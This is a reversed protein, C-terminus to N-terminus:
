WWARSLSAGHRHVLQDLGIPRLGRNRLGAIISPLASATQPQVHLLIISGPRAAQVVRSIIATAGPQTWDKPDVDWLTIYRYGVTGAASLVTSDFAGDPPRVYPTAAARWRWWVGRDYELRWLVDSFSLGTLLAHDWGHSGVTHGARITRAALSPNAQVTTGPCFFAAKVHARALTRLISAWSSAFACDDFTLAVRRGVNDVRAVLRSHAAHDFRYAHSLRASSRNGAADTLVGRLRYVGPLTSLVKRRRIRVVGSGTPLRDRVWRRVTRGYASVLRFRARLPRSADRIRYRVTLRTSRVVGGASTWKLRPRTTDIRLGVTTSATNGAQDRGSVTLRYRGDPLRARAADRGGWRLRLGGSVEMGDALVRVIEGGANRIDIDVFTPESVTVAIATKDKHGDGNPSFAAPKAQAAIVPPTNDVTVSVSTTTGEATTARLQAPGNYLGSNWAAQWGDASHSDVAFVKWTLGDSSWAFEVSTTPVSTAATVQVTGAVLSADAPSEIAITGAAKASSPFAFSASVLVAILFTTARRSACARTV